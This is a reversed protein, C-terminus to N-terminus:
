SPTCAIVGTGSTKECTFRARATGDRAVCSTDTRSSSMHKSAMYSAEKASNLCGGIGEVQTSTASYSRADYHTNYHTNATLPETAATAPLAKVAVPPPAPPAVPQTVVASPDQAPVSQGCAALMAAAASVALAGFMHKVTMPM